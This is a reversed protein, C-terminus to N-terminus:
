LNDIRRCLIEKHHIATAGFVESVSLIQYERTGIFVSDNEIIDVEPCFFLKFTAFVEGGQTEVNFGTKGRQSIADVRVPVDIGTVQAESYTMVVEGYENTKRVGTTKDYARKLTCVQPLLNLFVSDCPVEIIPNVSFQNIIVYDKNPM